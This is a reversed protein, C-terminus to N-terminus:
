SNSALRSSVDIIAEYEQEKSRSFLKYLTVTPLIIVAVFLSTMVVSIDGSETAFGAIHNM